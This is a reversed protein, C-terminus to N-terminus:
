ALNMPIVGWYDLDMYRVAAAQAYAIAWPTLVITPVSITTTAVLAGDLFYDVQRLGGGIPYVNGVHWHPNTDAAVGSDVTNIVGGGTRTRLCWNNALGLTNFGFEIVDNYGADRVGLNCWASTTHSISFRAMMVWGLDADLTAFGDAADGLWLMHWAGLVAGATLRYAGGHFNNQLAGVSGAGNSQPTYQEHIAMGLFDDRWGRLALPREKAELASLRQQAKSLRAVLEEVTSSM